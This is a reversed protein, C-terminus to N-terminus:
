IRPAQKGPGSERVEKREPIRQAFNRALSFDGVAGSDKLTLFYARSGSASQNLFAFLNQSPDASSLCSASSDLENLCYNSLRITIQMNYNTYSVAAVGTGAGTASVNKSAVARQQQQPGALGYPETGFVLPLGAAGSAAATYYVLIHSANILEVPEDFFLLASICTAEERHLYWRLLKPPTTDM